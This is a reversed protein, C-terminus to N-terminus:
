SETSKLKRRLGEGANVPLLETVLEVGFRRRKLFQKSMALVSSNFLCLASTNRM